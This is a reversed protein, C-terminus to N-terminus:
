VGHEIPSSAPAVFQGVQRRFHGAVEASHASTAASAESRTTERTGRFASGRLPCVAGTWPRVSSLPVEARNQGEAHRRGVVRSLEVGQVVPYRVPHVAAGPVDRYSHEHFTSKRHIQAHPKRAVLFCYGGAQLGERRSSRLLLSQRAV